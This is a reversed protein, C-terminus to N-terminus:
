NTGSRTACLGRRRRQREIREREKPTTGGWVGVWTDTNLAYNLCDQTVPCWACYEQKARKQDHYEESFFLDAEDSTIGVCRGQEKWDETEM